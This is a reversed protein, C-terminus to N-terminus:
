RGRTRLFGWVAGEEATLSGRKVGRKLNEVLSGDLYADIV